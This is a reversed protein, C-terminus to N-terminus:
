LILVGVGILVAIQKLTLGFIKTQELVPPTTPILIPEDDIPETIPPEAPTPQIPIKEFTLTGGLFVVPILNTTTFGIIRVEAIGTKDVLLSSIDRNEIFLNRSIVPANIPLEITEITGDDFIINSQVGFSQIQGDLIIPQSFDVESLNIKTSYIVPESRGVLFPNGRTLVFQQTVM